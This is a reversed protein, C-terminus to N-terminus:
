AAELDDEGQSAIEADVQGADLHDEVHLLVHLLHLALDVAQEVVDAAFRRLTALGHLALARQHLDLASRQALTIGSPPVAYVATRRRDARRGRAVIEGHCDLFDLQGDARAAAPGPPDHLEVAAGAGRAGAEARRVLH